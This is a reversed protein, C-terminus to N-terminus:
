KYCLLTDSVSSLRFDQWRSLRFHGNIMVVVVVVVVVVMVVVVVVMMMM